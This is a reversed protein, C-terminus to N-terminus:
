INKETMECEVNKIYLLFHPAERRPAERRQIDGSLPDMTAHFGGLPGSVEGTVGRADACIRTEPDDASHQLPDLQRRARSTGTCCVADRASALSPTDHGVWVVEPVRGGVQGTVRRTDAGEASSHCTHAATSGVATM